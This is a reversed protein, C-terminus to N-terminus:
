IPKVFLAIDSNYFYYVKIAVPPVPTPLDLNKGFIISYAPKIKLLEGDILTHQVLLFYHLLLFKM